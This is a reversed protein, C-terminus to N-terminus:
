IGRPTKAPKATAEPPPPPTEVTMRDPLRLDLTTINRDLVHQEAMLKALRALAEATGDEPLKVVVKNQMHLDWRRNGVRVAARVLPFISPQVVLQSLLDAAEKEAGEGVVRPLALNEDVGAERLTHGEQDILYFHQKNQWIAIPAREVLKVYITSPLRREVTGSKVWSIATLRQLADHPDFKLIPSGKKVDLVQLINDRDTQNRGEILIEEVSFGAHRSFNYAADVSHQAQKEVWGSRWLVIGMGVVGAMVFLMIPMTMRRLTDGLSTENPEKRPRPRRVVIRKKPRAM